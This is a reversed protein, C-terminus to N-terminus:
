FHIVTCTCSAHTYTHLGHQTQQLDSALKVTGTKWRKLPEPSFLSKWAQISFWRTLVGFSPRIQDREQEVAKLLKEKWSFYELCHLVGPGVHWTVHDRCAQDCARQLWM